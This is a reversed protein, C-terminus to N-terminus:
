AFVKFYLEDVAKKDSDRLKDYFAVNFALRTDEYQAMKKGWNILTRPSMTLNIQMQSNANRILEALAVMKKAVAAAVTTRSTIVDVEHAKSLYGLVITTTFRDLTASNQVMTGSFNGSDDGQGVTNGACILRFNAHPHLTKEEATGPMEKLFLFGDDELLNQLGMAIEPPMLEWEDILVVGGHRVAETLPGDQWVTAGGKVTLQGFLASSEIDGSMNVRIFPYGLKSCVHKVLSSKGSGTPGTILIKDGHVIGKVLRAAEETQVVYDKDIARVHAAMIPDVKVSSPVAFDGFKPAKGFMKSFLVEGEKVEVVKKPAVEEAVGAPVGKDDTMGKDKMYSALADAVLSDMEIRGATKTMAM